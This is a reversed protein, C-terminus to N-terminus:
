YRKELVMQDNTRNMQFRSLFSNGLLVYPMSGSAVVGDVDYAVVDGVRVANIKVYWAPIVGNATSIRMPLATNYKLGMRQADSEAIVVGTAGTDVMMTASKGNIQGQAMFHGGSDATLVIRGGSGGAPAGGGVSVPADGVRLTQRKGDIEVVATDGQTSVLRVGRFSEGAALAKPNSGDVVVLAKNGLMGSLAVAQAYAAGTGLVSLALLTRLLTPALPM